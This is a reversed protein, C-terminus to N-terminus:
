RFDENDSFDDHNWSPLNSTDELEEYLFQFDDYNDNEHIFSDSNNRANVQSFTKLAQLEKQYVEQPDYEDIFMFNDISSDKNRSFFVYADDLTMFKKRYYPALPFTQGSIPNVYIPYELDKNQLSHEIGSRIHEKVKKSKPNGFGKSMLCKPKFLQWAKYFEDPSLNLRLARKLNQVYDSSKLVYKTVYFAVDEQGNASARPNVFHFDFTRGRRTSIYECLPQYLPYRTSGINISWEKLFIDHLKKELNIIEGYSEGNNPYSLILHIHPRHRVGGYETVLLYRFKKLDYKKRVRKFMNQAHRIDCYNLNFGNINKTPVHKYTFTAFFLHNDLSEMQCRQVLYSQRLRVCTPCSGCPVAIKLSSTDHLRNHGIKSLGLYPNDIMIPNTCM